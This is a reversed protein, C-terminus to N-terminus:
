VDGPLTLYNLMPICFMSYSVYRKKGYGHMIDGRDQTTSNQKTIKKINKPKEQYKGRQQPSPKRKPSSNPPKEVEREEKTMMKNAWRLLDKLDKEAERHLSMAMNGWICLGHAYSFM